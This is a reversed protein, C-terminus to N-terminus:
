QIGLQVKLTDWSIEIGLTMLLAATGGIIGVALGFWIFNAKAFSRYNPNSKKNVIFVLDVILNVVPIFMTLLFWFAGSTKVSLNKIHETNKKTIHKEETNQKEANQEIVAKDSESLEKHFPPEEKIKAEATEKLYLMEAVEYIIGETEYLKQPKADIKPVFVTVNNKGASTDEPTETDASDQITLLNVPTVNTEARNIKEKDTTMTSEAANTGYKKGYM